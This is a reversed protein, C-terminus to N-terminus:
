WNECSRQSGRGQHPRLKRKLVPPAPHHGWLARGVLMLGTIHFRPSPSMSYPMRSWEESDLEQSKVTTVV